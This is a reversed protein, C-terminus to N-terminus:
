IKYSTGYSRPNDHNKCIRINSTAQIFFFGMMSCRRHGQSDGSDVFSPPENERNRGHAKLDTNLKHALM